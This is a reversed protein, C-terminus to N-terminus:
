QDEAKMPGKQCALSVTLPCGNVVNNSKDIAVSEMILHQCFLLCQKQHRQKSRLSVCMSQAFNNSRALDSHCQSFCFRYFIFLSLLVSSNELFISWCKYLTVFMTNM